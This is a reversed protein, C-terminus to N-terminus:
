VEELDISWNYTGQYEAFDLKINAVIMVLIPRYYTFNGQTRGSGPVTPRQTHNPGGTPFSLEAACYVEVTEGIWANDLCPTEGDRCSITSRYKRFRTDVVSRLWGNVDRRLWASEGGGANTILELTQTLGRAAYPTLQLADNGSLPNIQLLTGNALNLPDYPTAQM